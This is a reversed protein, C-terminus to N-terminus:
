GADNIGHGESKRGGLTGLYQMQGNTYLFTQDSSFGTVQGVNNIGAGVTPSAPLATVSYLLDATLTHAGGLLMVSIVYFRLRM